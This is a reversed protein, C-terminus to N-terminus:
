ENMVKNSFTIKPSDQATSGGGTGKSASFNSAVGPNKAYGTGGMEIAAIMGLKSVRNSFGTYSIGLHDAWEQRTLTLGNYTFAKASAGAGTSRGKRIAAEMSGLKKARASLSAVAIGLHDAWQIATMAKGDVTHLETTIPTSRTRRAKAGKVPTAADSRIRRKPHLAMTKGAEGYVNILLERRREDQKQRSYALARQLAQESERRFEEADIQRAREAKTM